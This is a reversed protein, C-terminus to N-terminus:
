FVVKPIKKIFKPVINQSDLISQGMQNGSVRITKEAFTEPYRDKLPFSKSV